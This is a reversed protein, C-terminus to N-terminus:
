EQSELVVIINGSNGVNLIKAPVGNLASLVSVPLSAQDLVEIGVSWQEDPITGVLKRFQRRLRKKIELTRPIVEANVLLEEPLNLNILISRETGFYFPKWPTELPTGVDFVSRILGYSKVKKADGYCDLRIISTGSQITGPVAVWQDFLPTIIGRFDWSGAYDSFITM